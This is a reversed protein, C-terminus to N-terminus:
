TSSAQRVGFNEPRFLKRSSRRFPRTMLIEPGNMSAVCLGADLVTFGLTTPRGLQGILVLPFCAGFLLM